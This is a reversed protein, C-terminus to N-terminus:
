RAESEWRLATRARCEHTNGNALELRRRARQLVSCVAPRMDAATAVRRFTFPASLLLGCREVRGTVAEPWGRGSHGDADGTGCIDSGGTGQVAVARVGRWSGPQATTGVRFEEGGACNGD